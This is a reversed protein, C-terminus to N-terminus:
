PHFFRHYCLPSHRRQRGPEEDEDEDENRWESERKPGVLREPPASTPRAHLRLCPSMSAHLCPPPMYAYAHTGLPCQPKRTCLLAACRTTRRDPSPRPPRPKCNCKCNCNCPIEGRYPWGYGYGTATAIAIATWGESYLFSVSYPSLPIPPHPFLPIPSPALVVVLCHAGPRNRTTYQSVNYM